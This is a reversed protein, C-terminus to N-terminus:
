SSLKKNFKDIMSKWSDICNMNCGLPFGWDTFPLRVAYFGIMESIQQVETLDVGAQCAELIGVYFREMVLFFLLPSLPDGQRLEWWVDFEETPSGNLLVSARSSTLAAKV